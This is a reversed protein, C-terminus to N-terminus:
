LPIVYLKDDSNFFEKNDSIVKKCVNNPLDNDDILDLAKHSGVICFRTGDLQNILNLLEDKM